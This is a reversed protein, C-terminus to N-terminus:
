AKPALSTSAKFFESLRNGFRDSDGQTDQDSLEKIATYALDKPIVSTKRAELLQRNFETQFEPHAQITLIQNNLVLGAYQCFESSAYVEAGPPLEVIQDQHFINLTILKQEDIISGPALKYTDLGLGWGKDSKEVRGGLAEAIIQHGFCIGVLPIDTDVIQRILDKLAPIWPQTGYVSFKSGTILWGDCDTINHPIHGDIVRYVLFEFEDHQQGLLREFMNNYNGHQQLLEEPTDGTQLIGIQM